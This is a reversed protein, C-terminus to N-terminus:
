TTNEGEGESGERTDGGDEDGGGTIIQSMIRDVVHPTGLVRFGEENRMIGTAGLKKIEKYAIMLIAMDEFENVNLTLLNGGAALRVNPGADEVLLEDKKM